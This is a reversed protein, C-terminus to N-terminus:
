HNEPRAQRCQQRALTEAIQEIAEVARARNQERAEDLRNQRILRKGCSVFIRRAITIVVIAKIITLAMSSRAANAWSVVGNGVGAWRRPTSRRLCVFACASMLITPQM